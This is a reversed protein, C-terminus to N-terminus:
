VPDNLREEIWEDIVSEVIDLPMSGNMLIRNHFQRIDFREGLEARARDRLELLKMMGVKYALAQGPMVLYREIESVVDTRAMGTKEVMYEIAQERTWRRYHMGTDVVLRVARFQEAQLRGLNDLPDNQFGAEWAVREAYLAWGESYATFPLMRRFMPVGTLEQQLAIQFHHGPIAEHYALTRLGFRPHEEVHKLKAFFVGPRSGDMAPRSYYAGASGDEAYEPVRRVEVGAAPRVDFWDDLGGDIETIIERFADLIAERGADSDEFLQDPDRSLAQVREGVSGECRGVSCLIADMEAEIRAVEALGIQHVDEPTYDTTTHWRVAWAYYDDGDPLRWVGDNSRARLLLADQYAILSEYAPYVAERIVEALEGPLARRRGEPFGEIADVRELFEAYLPNDEVPQEIFERMSELTKEIAFRPAVVGRREHEELVEVTGAFAEPFGALRALYFDVDQENRVPHVQLMFNPLGTHIGRMQHLPFDHWSWRQGEVQRALFWEFIDYSLAEQGEYDSRDYRRLTTLSDEVWADMAEQREISVEDLKGQYFKIPLADFLGISTLAQPSDLGFQLFTREFFLNLTVPKFWVVNVVLAGLLLILAAVTLGGWKFIRKIM